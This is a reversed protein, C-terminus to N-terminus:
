DKYTSVESCTAFPTGDNSKTVMVKFYRFSKIVPLKVHNPGATGLLEYTGINEWSTNDNSVSLQVTKLKSGGNRQMFTFRNVALISGMDITFYQPLVSGEGGWKSVWVTSVDGDILNLAAGNENVTEQSSFDLVKWSSRNYAPLDGFQVDPKGAVMQYSYTNDEKTGNEHLFSIHVDNRFDGKDKIEALPMKVYFSDTGIPKTVWHESDYDADDESRKADNTLGIYMVKKNSKYRGSIIISQSAQDFAANLKTVRAGAPQYWDTRTVASFTQGISLLACDWADLYSKGTVFGGGNGTMINTGYLTNNSILGGNHPLGLGHLMEHFNGGIWLSQEKIDGQKHMNAIEMYPFDIAYAWNGTGYYPAQQKGFENVATLIFVHESKKKDPHAALWDNIEVSMPESGGNYPYSATPNKGNVINIEVDGAADTALGFTKEGYGWKKMWETTYNQEYRLYETIRRKYDPNVKMDSPVFYVVTLKYASAAQNKVEEPKIIETTAPQKKCSMIAVSLLIVFLKKM